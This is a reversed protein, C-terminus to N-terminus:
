ITQVSVSLSNQIWNYRSTIHSILHNKLILHYSSLFFGFDFCNSLKIISIHTYTHLLLKLVQKQQKRNLLLLLIIFLAFLTRFRLFFSSIRNGESLQYLSTDSYYTIYNPTLQLIDLFLFNQFISKHSSFRLILFFFILNFFYYLTNVFLFLSSYCCHVIVMSYCM